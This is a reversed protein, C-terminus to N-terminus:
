IQVPEYFEIRALPGWIRAAEQAEQKTDYLVPKPSEISFDVRRGPDDLVWVYDDVAFPVKIGYM